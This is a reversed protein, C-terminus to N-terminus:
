ACVAGIMLALIVVAVGLLFLTLLVTLCSKLFRPLCSFIVGGLLAGSLYSM